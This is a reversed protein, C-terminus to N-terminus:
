FDDDFTDEQLVHVSRHHSKGDKRLTVSATVGHVMAVKLEHNLRINKVRGDRTVGYDPFQPIRRYHNVDDLTGIGDTCSVVIVMGSDCVSRSITSGASQM